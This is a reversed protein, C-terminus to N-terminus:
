GREKERQQADGILSLMEDNFGRTEPKVSKKSPRPSFKKKRSNLEAVVGREVLKPNRGLFSAWATDLADEWTQSAGGQYLAVATKFLGSRERVRSDKDVYGGAKTRPLDKTLGLRPNTKSWEDMKKEAVSFRERWAKEQSEKKGESLEGRLSRLEQNQQNTMDVLAQIPGELGAKKLAEMQEESFQIVKSADDESSKDESSEQGQRDTDDVNEEAAAPAQINRLKELLEPSKDYMEIIDEDSLGLSSVHNYLEEDIEIDDSGGDDGSSQTGENGGEDSSNDSESDEEGYAEKFLSDMATMDLREGGEEESGEEVTNTEEVQSMDSNVNEDAM